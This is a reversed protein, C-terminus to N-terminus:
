KQMQRRQNRYAAIPVVFFYVLVVLTEAVLLPMKFWPWLAPKVALAVTCGVGLLLCGFAVATTIPTVM